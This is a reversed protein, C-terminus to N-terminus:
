EAALAPADVAIAEALEAALAEILRSVRDFGTGPSALDAALYTARDIEIQLAHIGGAPRGHREVIHGGAYPINLAARFGLRDCIAAAERALWEASSAMHRNGIVVPAASGGRPPMSHLDLLLVTPHAAALATLQEGLLQHYPRHVAALRAEFRARSLARKWLTGHRVARSPIIGLGHRARPGVPAPGADAIAAPDVEEPSRNCDIAARPTRAIVAGFGAALARWALRDVLPDELSALAARGHRAEAILWEPYDRGSHPISLM